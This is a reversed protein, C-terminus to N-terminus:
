KNTKETVSIEERKPLGALYSEPTIVVVVRRNESAGKNLSNEEVLPHTDAYGIAEFREKKLGQEVFFRVVASARGGSLEWNSPFEATKIPVSDTHGEIIIKRDSLKADNLTQAIKMLVPSAVSKVDAKGSDFLLKDKFSIEVGKSTMNANVSEELKESKILKDMTQQLDESTMRKPDESFFKSVAEFKVLDLTSMSFLLVFFAFMLTIMDAYSLIWPESEEEQRPKLLEELEASM